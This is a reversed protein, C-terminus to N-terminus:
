RSGRLEKTNKRSDNVQHKDFILIQFYSKSFYYFNKIKIKLKIAYVKSRAYYKLKEFAIFCRFYPGEHIIGVMGYFRWERSLNLTKM